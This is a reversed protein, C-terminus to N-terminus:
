KVEITRVLEKYANKTDEYFVGFLDNIISVRHDYMDMLKDLKDQDVVDSTMNFKNSFEYMNMFYAYIQDLKNVTMKYRLPSKIPGSHTRGLGVPAKDKDSEEM